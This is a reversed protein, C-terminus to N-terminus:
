VAVSGKHDEVMWDARRKLDEQVASRWRYVTEAGAPDDWWHNKNPDPQVFRGGWGDQDPREPDNVGFVAGLLHLFSPTDGEWIGPLHANFGSRPYAAGLPGHGERLHQNAWDIDGLAHDSGPANWFMGKYNEESVVVFLEPFEELLWGATNDQRAILYIRLKALFRALEESSRTARVKWIAKAVEVPGGWVCVWVPRDDDKDVIRIIAESAENELGEGLMQDVPIGGRFYPSGWTGDQGQYTVARLADATPYRADHRALNPQVQEYIDLMDLIHQKVAINAFSGASAILAEIKLDNSCMLLRVMSQVDDPDSYREPPEGKQYVSGPIVDVPPFDTMVIVRPRIASNKTATM